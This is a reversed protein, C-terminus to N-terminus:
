NLCLTFAWGTGRNTGSGDANFRRWHGRLKCPQVNAPNDHPLLKRIERLTNECM